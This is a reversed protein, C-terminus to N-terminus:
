KSPRFTTSCSICWICLFLCFTSIINLLKKCLNLGIEKCFFKTKEILLNLLLFVLIGMVSTYHLRRTKRFGIHLWQTYEWRTLCYKLIHTRVLTLRNALIVKYQMIENTPCLPNTSPFLYFVVCKKKKRKCFYFYTANTHHGHSSIPISQLLLVHIKLETKATLHLWDWHKFIIM